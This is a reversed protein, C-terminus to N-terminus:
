FNKLLITCYDTLTDPSQGMSYLYMKKLDHSDYSQCFMQEETLENISITYAEKLKSKITEPFILENIYDKINSKLFKSESLDEFVKKFDQELQNFFYASTEKLDSNLKYFELTKQTLDENKTMDLHSILLRYPVPMIGENKSLLYGEILEIKELIEDLFGTEAKNTIKSILKNLLPIDYNKLIFEKYKFVTQHKQLGFNKLMIKLRNSFKESIEEPYDELYCLINTLDQCKYIGDTIYGLVIINNVDKCNYSSTKLTFLPAKEIFLKVIDPNNSNIALEFLPYNYYECCVKSSYDIFKEKLKEVLGKCVEELQLFIAEHLYTSKGISSLYIKNLSKDTMRDILLLCLKQQRYVMAINLSTVGLPDALEIVEQSVRPVLLEAIEFLKRIIALRLLSGGHKVTKSLEEPTMQFILDRAEEVNKNNIAIALQKWRVLYGDFFSIVEALWRHKM